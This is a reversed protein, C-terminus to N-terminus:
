GRLRRKTLLLAREAAHRIVPLRSSRVWVDAGVQVEVPVDDCLMASFGRVGGKLSDLVERVHRKSRGPGSLYRAFPPCPALPRVCCLDVVGHPGCLHVGGAVQRFPVVAETRILINEGSGGYDLHPFRATLGDYHSSFGFSVIRERKWARARRAVRHHSDLTLEDASISAAIGAPTVHLREVEVLPAPDYRRPGEHDQLIMSSTQVQLKEITGLSRFGRPLDHGCTENRSRSRERITM